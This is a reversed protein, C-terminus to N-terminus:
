VAPIVASPKTEGQGNHAPVPDSRNGGRTDSALQGRGETDTRWRGASTCRAASVDQGRYHQTSPGWYVQLLGWSMRGPGWCMCISDASAM